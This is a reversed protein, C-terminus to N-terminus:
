LGSFRHFRAVSCVVLPVLSDDKLDDVPPELDGPAAQVIYQVINICARVVNPNLTCKKEFGHKKPSIGLEELSYGQLKYTSYVELTRLVVDSPPTTRAIIDIGTQAGHEILM